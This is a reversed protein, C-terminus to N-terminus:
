REEQWLAGPPIGLKKEIRNILRAPMPAVGRVYDSFTSSPLKLRRALRWQPLAREALATRLRLQNIAM